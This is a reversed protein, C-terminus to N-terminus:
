GVEARILGTLLSFLTTKGAGNPGLLACFRGSDIAFTVDNLVQKRGYSFDLHAVTLGRPLEAVKRTRVSGHM